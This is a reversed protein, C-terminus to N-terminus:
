APGFFLHSFKLAGAELPESSVPAENKKAKAILADRFFIMKSKKSTGM